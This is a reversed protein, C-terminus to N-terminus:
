KIPDTPTTAFRKTAPTIERLGRLGDMGVDADVAEFRVGSFGGRSGGLAIPIFVAGVRLPVVADAPRPQDPNWVAAFYTQSDNVEVSFAAQWRTSHESGPSLRLLHRGPQLEVRVYSAYPFSGLEVGNLSLMPVDGRGIRDLEPRFLYLAAYGPAPAAISPIPALPKQPVTVCGVLLSLGVVLPLLIIRM